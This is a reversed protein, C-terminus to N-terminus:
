QFNTKLFDIVSSMNEFCVSRRINDLQFWEVCFLIDGLKTKVCTVEFEKRLFTSKIQVPKKPM